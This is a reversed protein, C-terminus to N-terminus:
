RFAMGNVRYIELGLDNVVVKLHDPDDLISRLVLLNCRLLDDVSKGQPIHVEEDLWVGRHRLGRPTVTGFVYCTDFRGNKCGGCEAHIVSKKGRAHNNVWKAFDDRDDFFEVGYPKIM